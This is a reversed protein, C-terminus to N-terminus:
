HHWPNSFTSDHLFQQDTLARLFEVIDIIEEDRLGLPRMLVAVNPHPKGGSNYHRVVEELSNFRGDHMYPNTVAVNRLSPTKFKGKDTEINTLLYRGPDITISDLGTNHFGNDTFNFSGHCHFCDGREGFFLDAGRQAAPSIASRDGRVFKDYPSNGSILTREFAAISKTIRETTIRSDGWADKFLTTYTPVASLRIVLSDTNMNMEIPNIIPALVQRELSPIGGEWHLATLFAANTLGPTNREGRLGNFGASTANGRDSFGGDPKHCSGCSVSGDKSFRKDYFLFRGLRVKASSMPNDSPVNVPPFGSPLNFRYQEAQQETPSEDKTCGALLLLTICCILLKMDSFGTKQSRANTRFASRGNCSFERNNRL